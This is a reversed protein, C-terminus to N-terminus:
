ATDTNSASNSGQGSPKQSVALRTHRPPSLTDVIIRGVNHWRSAVTENGALEHQRACGEAVDAADSGWLRLMAHSLDLEEGSLM